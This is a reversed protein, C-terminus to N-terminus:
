DILIFGGINSEAKKGNPFFATVMWYYNKNEELSDVVKKPLSIFNKSIKKSKWIPLLSEDFLDLVYYKSGEYENWKFLLSPKSFKKDLPEILRLAEFDNTRYEGNNLNQIIIFALIFIAAGLLFFAYKRKLLPHFYKQRKRYKPYSIKNTKKISYIKNKKDLLGYLENNIKKEYRLIYLIFQFERACFFCNTIHNIINTKQRESTKTTFSASLKKISPCNKRSKPIKELISAM